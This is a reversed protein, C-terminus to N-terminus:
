HQYLLTPLPSRSMNALVDFNDSHAFYEVIDQQRHFRTARRTTGALANSKSFISEANESAELGCGPTYIPMKLLQCLRKHGTGHFAGVVADFGHLHAVEACLPHSYVWKEFKCGIDYGLRFKGLSCLLYYTASLGYKASLPLTLPCLNSSMQLFVYLEGSRIMDCILLCASHRCFAAFIGTEAYIGRAMRIVNEKMNQWGEGCGKDNDEHQPDVLFDRMVATMEALREKSFRDVEEAPIYYDRPAPRHDISEVSAGQITQGSEDVLTERREARKLSNNGDMTVLIPPDLPAEGEVKYLCAPCANKLRWNPENRGLEKAVRLRVIEKVRLFLDFAASFQTQLYPRPAIGFMDNIGRLFAQKGLRPCRLRLWYFANLTRATFVVTALYPSCPFLGQRVLTSAFPGDGVVLPM